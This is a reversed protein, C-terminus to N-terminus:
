LSYMGVFKFLRYGLHDTTTCTGDSAASKECYCSCGDENCRNESEKTAFDNTGYIFMSVGKAECAIACAEATPQPDGWEESGTCEIKEGVLAFGIHLLIGPILM